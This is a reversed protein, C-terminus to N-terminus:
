AALRRGCGICYRVGTATVAIGCGDCRGPLYSGCTACYLADAVAAAGCTACTPHTARYNQLAVEVADAPAASKPASRMSTLAERTYRERLTAYDADSLKGTARDFEIERLAVISLDDATTPRRPSPAASRRVGMLIPAMVFGLTVVALLSGLVLALM